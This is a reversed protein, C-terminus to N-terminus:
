GQREQEVGFFDFMGDMYNELELKRGAATVADVIKSAEVADHSNFELLRDRGLRLAERTIAANNRTANILAALTYEDYPGRIVAKLADEFHEFLSRGASFVQEFANIGEDYWKILVESASAAYYPM